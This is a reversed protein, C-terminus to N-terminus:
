LSFSSLCIKWDRKCGSTQFSCQSMPRLRVCRDNAMPDKDKKSMSHLIESFAYLNETV